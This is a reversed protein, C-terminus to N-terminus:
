VVEDLFAEIAELTFNPNELHCAHGSEPVVVIGSKNIGSNLRVALSRFKSDEEGALILTPSTIENLKRWLSPQSGTGSGRLSNALGHADNKLRQRRSADFTESDIRIQSEFIPQDMWYEVFWEIGKELIEDALRDDSRRRATRQNEDTIGATAGILIMNKIKNPYKTALGIALRGGMSYGLVNFEQQNHSEMVEIIAALTNEFNFLYPELDKVTSGHGPLDISVVSYNKSLPESISSMTSRDGTFGHLVLLPAGEGKIESSLTPVISM